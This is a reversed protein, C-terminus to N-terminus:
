FDISQLRGKASIQPLKMRGQAEEILSRFSEPHELFVVLQCPCEDVSRVDAADLSIESLRFSEQLSRAPKGIMGGQLVDGPVVENVDQGLGSPGPFCSAKELLCFVEVLFM